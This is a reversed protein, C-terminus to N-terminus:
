LIKALREFAAKLDGTSVAGVSMRFWGSEERYGFAQFPVVGLGCEALLWGRVDENTRM